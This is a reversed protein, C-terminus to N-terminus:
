EQRDNEPSAGILNGAFLTSLVPEILDEIRTGHVLKGAVHLSVLGHVGSWFVHALVDPDGRLMRAEVALGIAERLPRWARREAQRLEPYANPDPQSLSFMLRYADPDELGFRVYVHGLDSLRSRPDQDGDAAAQQADAFRAYARSRVAAFISQKSEFYRYPAMPSCGLQEALSRFTVGNYGREAFLITAVEVIRERQSEIEDASYAPRGM